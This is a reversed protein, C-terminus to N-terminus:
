NSSKGRWSWLLISIQAHGLNKAKADHPTTPVALSSIGYKGTHLSLRHRSDLLHEHCGEFAGFRFLIQFRRESAFRLGIATVQIKCVLGVDFALVVDGCQEARGRFAFGAVRVAMQFVQFDDAVGGGAQRDAARPLVQRGGHGTFRM